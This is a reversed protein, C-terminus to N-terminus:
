PVAVKAAIDTPVAKSHSGKSAGIPVKIANGGATECNSPPPRRASIPGKNRCAKHSASASPSPKNTSSESAGNSSRGIPMVASM